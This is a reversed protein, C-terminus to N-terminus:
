STKPVASIERGHRTGFGHGFVEVFAREAEDRSDFWRGDGGFTTGHEPGAWFTDTTIGQNTVRSRVVWRTLRTLQDVHDWCLAMRRYDDEDDGEPVERLAWLESKRATVYRVAHSANECGEVECDPRQRIIESDDASSAM